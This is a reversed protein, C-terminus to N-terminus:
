QKALKALDKDFENLNIYGDNDIDMEVFEVKLKNFDQQTHNNKKKFWNTTENLSLKMDKNIDIINFYNLQFDILRRRGGHCAGSRCGGDCNCGFMNCPGRGCYPTGFTCDGCCPSGGNPCDKDGEDDCCASKAM